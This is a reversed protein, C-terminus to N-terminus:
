ETKSEPDSFWCVIPRSPIVWEYLALREHCYDADRTFLTSFSLALAMVLAWLVVVYLAAGVLPHRLRNM